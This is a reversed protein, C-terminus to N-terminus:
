LFLVRFQAQYAALDGGESYLYGQSVIELKIAKYGPLDPYNHAKDQETIWNLVGQVLELNAAMTRPDGDAPLGATFSFNLQQIGGGDVYRRWIPDSPVFEISYAPEAPLFDINVSRDLLPCTEMYARIAEFVNSGSPM